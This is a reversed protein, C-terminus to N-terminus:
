GEMGGPVELGDEWWQDDDQLGISSASYSGGVSSM